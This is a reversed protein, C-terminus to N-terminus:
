RFRLSIFIQVGSPRPVFPVISSSLYPDMSLQLSISSYKGRNQKPLVVEDGIWTPPPAEIPLESVDSNRKKKESINLTLGLTEKTKCLM